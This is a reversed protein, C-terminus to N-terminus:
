SEGRIKRLLVAWAKGLASKAKVDNMALLPVTRDDRGPVSIVMDAIHDGAAVPATVTKFTMKSSIKSRDGRYLGTVIKEDIKVDVSEAKGMFVDVKGIVDDKEYLDYVKFQDFAAGMLRNAVDSREQKNALGNIVIIRRDDGRKASGVLGYGSVSTSGTKLGDAGTFKGLLPNRNGQRIGNWTFNRESYIPYYEPHNTIMYQALQALDYASINHEPDPWGTANRFTATTLGIERARATMKDAFATESGALGEAMVICADNGSQIIIGRILDEVRVVSKVDLYMTSSGSAAGGRRWAEESVRFETDLTITGNELAEFIMNATMIKTMSAPAMPERADKEFLVEGTEFDMIVVHPAKTTFSSDQAAAPLTFALCLFALSLRYM